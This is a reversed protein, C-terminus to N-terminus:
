AETAFAKTLQTRIMHKARKLRGHVAQKSLDLVQGIRDYTMGDYYHLYILERYQAPLRRIVGRVLETDTESEPADVTDPVESVFTL